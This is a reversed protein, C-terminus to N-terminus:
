SLTYRLGAVSMMLDRGHKDAEHGKHFLGKFVSSEEERKKVTEGVIKATVSARSTEGTSSSGVTHQVSKEKQGRERKSSIEGEREVEGKRKSKRCSAEHEPANPQKRDKETHTDTEKERNNESIDCTDCSAHPLLLKKNDKKQKKKLESIERERERRQRMIREQQSLEHSASLPLLHIMDLDTFPGYEQQLSEIGIERIAKESLVYGTSWILTFPLIGNFEVRTIPCIYLSQFIGETNNSKLYNKNATLKLEKIDKLGRIHSFSPNLTKNLLATILDEKNYLNGM